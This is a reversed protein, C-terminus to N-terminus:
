VLKRDEHFIMEYVGNENEFLYGVAVEKSINTKMDIGIFNNHIFIKDDPADVDLIQEYLKSAHWHGFVYKKNGTNFNAIFAPTNSWNNVFWEKGNDTDCGAHLFVFDGFEYMPKLDLLFEEIRPYKEVIKQSIEKGQEFLWMPSVHVGSLQSITSNLGNYILNFRVTSGGTGRVYDLLMDDHNGRIGIFRGQEWMDMVFALVTDSAPGRDFLDGLSFLIDNEDEINFGMEILNSQLADFEGHVDSFVYYKKMDEEEAWDYRACSRGEM